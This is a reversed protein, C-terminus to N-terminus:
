RRRGPSSTRGATREAPWLTFAVRGGAKAVTRLARMAVRPRGFHDLVFNGVVADFTGAEFPLEPM